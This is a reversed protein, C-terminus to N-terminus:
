RGLVLFGRSKMRGRGILSFTRLVVVNPQVTDCPPLGIATGNAFHRQHTLPIPENALGTVAVINFYDQAARCTMRISIRSGARCTWCVARSM